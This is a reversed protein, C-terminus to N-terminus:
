CYKLNRVTEDVYFFIKPKVKPNFFFAKVFHFSRQTKRKKIPSGWTKLPMIPGLDEGGGVKFPTPDGKLTPPLVELGM